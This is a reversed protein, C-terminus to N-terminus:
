QPGGPFHASPPKTGHLGAKMAAEMYTKMQAALPPLKEPHHAFDQFFLRMDFGVPMGLFERQASLLPPGGPEGTAPIHPPLHVAYMSGAGLAEHPYKMLWSCNHMDLIFNASVVVWQGDDAATPRQCNWVQAQPVTVTPDTFAYADLELKQLAHQGAFRGVEPLAQGWDVNSDSALFYTPRGFSLANFYPFYFPYARATTFLCSLALVVTLGTLLRAARPATLRLRALIRPLPALLLILLVIPITFHRISITMRSVLCVGVFVLLSVWLVRWHLGMAAPITPAPSPDRQKRRIALALVFALALLSLFGLSSKLVFVVPFFFWVGHPYGHGLLFTPRSSTLVFLLLGRLYLWPPMLLRQLPVIAPGHGLLDLVDTTQGLSFIFYFAYVALAAWLIGKLTAWWRLRRWARIEPKTGPQGPVARWRTSLAFAGFAFFLIGSSFKSLLAGALCVAFLAVNKRSPDQWVGAFTWLTLLSFLTIALDTHVLPGFVLFTPTSVYVALCLLGGWDGGIRRACAYLMWGLALTLLLMPLRAWALTPVPKNWQNLVAEGFLMQGMYAPIFDRSIIWQNSSYDARTGRLVLPLAALVKPLPPHEENLRLDFKQLYSLGAGIHFVEDFTVAERLAAGGALVAMLALLLGALIAFRARHSEQAPTNSGSPPMDMLALKEETCHPNVQDL